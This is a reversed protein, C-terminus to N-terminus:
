ELSAMMKVRDVLEVIALYGLVLGLGKGLHALGLVLDDWHLHHRVLHHGLGLKLALELHHELEIHFDLRLRSQHFIADELSERLLFVKDSPSFARL